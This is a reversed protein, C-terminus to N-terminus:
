RRVPARELELAGMDLLTQAHETSTEETVAAYRTTPTLEFFRGARLRAQTSNMGPVTAVVVDFGKSTQQIVAFRKPDKIKM